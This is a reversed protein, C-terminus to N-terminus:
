DNLCWRAYVMRLDFSHCWSMDFMARSQNGNRAVAHLHEMVTTGRLSRRGSVEINAGSELMLRMVEHIKKAAELALEDVCGRVCNRKLCDDHQYWPIMVELFACDIADQSTEGNCLLSEM